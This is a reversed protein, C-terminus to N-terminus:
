TLESKQHSSSLAITEVVVKLLAPAFWDVLWGICGIVSRLVAEVCLEGAELRIAGVKRSDKCIDWSSGLAGIRRMM